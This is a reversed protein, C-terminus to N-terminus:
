RQLVERQVRKSRETSKPLQRQSHTLRSTEGDPTPQAESKEAQPHDQRSALWRM